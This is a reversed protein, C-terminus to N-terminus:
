SHHVMITLSIYNSYHDSCRGYRSLLPNECPALRRFRAHNATARTNSIAASDGRMCILQGGAELTTSSSQECIGGIEKPNRPGEMRVSASNGSSTFSFDIRQPLLPCAIQSGGNGNPARPPLSIDGAVTTAATVSRQAAVLVM